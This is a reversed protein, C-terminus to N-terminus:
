ALLLLVHFSQYPLHQRGRGAAFGISAPTAAIFGIASSSIPMRVKARAAINLAATATTPAIGAAACVTVNEVEPTKLPAPHPVLTVIQLKPPKVRENV